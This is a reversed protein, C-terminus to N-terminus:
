ATPLSLSQFHHMQHSWEGSPASNRPSGLPGRGWAAHGEWTRTWPQLPLALLGTLGSSVTEKFRVSLRSRRQPLSPVILRGMVSLNSRVIQKQLFFFPSFAKEKWLELMHFELNINANRKRMQARERTLISTVEFKGNYMKGFLWVHTETIPARNRGRATSLLTM